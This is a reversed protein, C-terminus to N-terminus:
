ETILSIVFQKVLKKRPEITVKATYKKREVHATVTYEGPLLYIEVESGFKNDIRKPKEMSDPAVITHVQYKGVKINNGSNDIASLVILGHQPIVIEVLKKKGPEVVFERSVKAKEYKVDLQYKGPLLMVTGGSTFKHMIREPKEMSDEPVITFIDWKDLKQPDGGLEYVARIEVQGQKPLVVELVSAKGPVVTFIQNVNAKKYKAKIEYTGPLLMVVPDRGYGTEISKPKALSDEPVITLIEWRDPDLSVGGPEEVIKITIEGQEALIIEIEYQEGSRIEIIQDTVAKKYRVHVLYKGPLLTIEPEDHYSDLIRTKKDKIDAGVPFIEWHDPRFSEGGAETVAKLTVVGQNPMEVKIHHEEGEVIEFTMDITTKSRTARVTYFGPDLSTKTETSYSSFIRKQHSLDSDTGPFVQWRDVPIKEGAKNVGMFQVNFKFVSAERVTQEFSEKLTDANDATLFNGGTEEAICKLSDLNEEKGLGFGIVHATFDVGMKELTRAVSCPNEDCTELGDSLLIVTAKNETYKLKEAAMRVAATLPTKGKPQIANVAKMFNSKSFPGVPILLEIDSCDGKRRHGYAILGVNQEPNWQDLVDNLVEKAITIKAKGDVQGWMSGSADLVVIIDGSSGSVTGPVSINILSIVLLLFFFRSINTTM